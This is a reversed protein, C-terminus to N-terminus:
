FPIQDGQSNVAEQAQRNADMAQQARPAPTNAAGPLATPAPQQNVQTTPLAVRICPVQKGGFDTQSRILTIQGNLWGELEPGHIDSITQSNTKNAILRKDTEHFSLSLKKGDDFDVIEWTKITLTVPNVLDSAKLTSGGFVDGILTM